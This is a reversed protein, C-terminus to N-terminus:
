PSMAHAPSNPTCWLIATAEPGQSNNKLALARALYLSGDRDRTAYHRYPFTKIARRRQKPQRITPIAGLLAYPQQDRKSHQWARAACKDKNYVFVRVYWLLFHVISALLFERTYSTMPINNAWDARPVHGWEILACQISSRLRTDTRSIKRERRRVEDM